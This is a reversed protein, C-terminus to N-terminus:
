GGRVRLVLHLTDKDAIKYDSLKYGDELQKGAYILRQQEAPIGEKDVIKQKVSEVTDSLAVELAIAKGTLTKVIITEAFAPAALVLISLGAVLLRKLM